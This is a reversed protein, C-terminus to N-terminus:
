DTAIVISTTLIDDPFDPVPGLERNFTYEAKAIIRHTLELRAGLTVRAVHSEYVFAVGNAHVADRWDIRAYPRLWPAARVEGLLYGGSYDLCPALDCRTLSTKGEQNGQVYEATLSLGDPGTVHVDFGLHWQALSDDSQKDQPGAAGSIGLELGPVFLLQIHGSVTPLASAHISTSPEFRDVFSDGNAIAASATLPGLVLRGEIGLPRGSLYRNILSPTVTLRDPADQTRYELGLVSDIKGASIVLDADDDHWPHWDVHAYEIDLQSNGPRPLLEVLSAIAFDHGVDRGIKVGVSNVLVSPHGHSALPNTKMERSDSTDAPEGLANVATSLPDGTFVWQGAVHGDYQPYYLHGFDSRIGSGDGGVAFGGVDVYVKIFSRLPALVKVEAHTGEGRAHEVELDDRLQRIQEALDEVTPGTAVPADAPPGDAPPNAPADDPEGARATGAASAIGLAAIWAARRV